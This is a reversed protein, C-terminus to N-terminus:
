TPDGPGRHASLAQAIADRNPYKRLDGLQDWGIAAVHDEQCKNWLRGGEGLSIAWFRASNEEASHPNHVRPATHTGQFPKGLAWDRIIRYLRTSCHTLYTQALKLKESDGVDFPPRLYDEEDAQDRITEIEKKIAAGHREYLDKLPLHNALETFGEV